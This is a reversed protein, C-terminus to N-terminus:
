QQNTKMIHEEILEEFIRSITKNQMEAYKSIENKHIPNLSLNLKEKDIGKPRGMVKGNKTITAM